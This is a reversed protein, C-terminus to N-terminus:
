KTCMLMPVTQNGSAARVIIELKFGDGGDTAVLGPPVAFSTATPPLVVKLELAAPAERAVILEYSVVEVAGAKGLEPHSETVRTWTVVVPKGVAPVPSDGCDMPLSTPRAFGM